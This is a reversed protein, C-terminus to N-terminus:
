VYDAKLFPIYYILVYLITNVAFEKVGWNYPIISFAFTSNLFETFVPFAFPITIMPLFMKTLTLFVYVRQTKHSYVSYKDKLLPKVFLSTGLSLLVIIINTYILDLHLFYFCYLTYIIFLLALINIFILSLLRSNQFRASNNYNYEDENLKDIFKERRNQYIKNKIDYKLTDYDYIRDMTFSLFIQNTMFFTIWIVVTIYWPEDYAPIHLWNVNNNILEKTLDSMFLVPMFLGLSGLCGFGVYRDDGINLTSKKDPRLSATTFLLLCLVISSILM